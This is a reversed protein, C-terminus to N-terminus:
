SQVRVCMRYMMLRCSKRFGQLTKMFGQRVMLSLGRERCGLGKPFQLGELVVMFCSSRKCGEYGVSVRYSGM